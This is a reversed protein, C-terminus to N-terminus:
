SFVYFKFFLKWFFTKSFFFGDFMNALIHFM